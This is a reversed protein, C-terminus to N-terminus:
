QKKLILVKSNNVNQQQKIKIHIYKNEGIIELKKVSINIEKGTSNQGNINKNM